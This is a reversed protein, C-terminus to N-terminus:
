CLGGGLQRKDDSQDSNTRRKRGELIGVVIWLPLVIAFVTINSDLPLQFIDLAIFLEAVGFGIIVIWESVSFDRGNRRYVFYLFPPMLCLMGKAGQWWQMWLQVHAGIVFLVMFILVDFALILFPHKM